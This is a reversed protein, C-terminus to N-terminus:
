HEKLQQLLFEVQEWQEHQILEENNRRQREEEIFQQGADISNQQETEDQIQALQELVAFGELEYLQEQEWQEKPDMTELDYAELLGQKFTEEMPEEFPDEDEWMDNYRDVRRQHYEHQNDLWRSFARDNAQQRQFWQQQQQHQQSRMAGQHERRRQRQRQRRRRRSQQRRTTNNNQQLNLIPYNQSPIMNATTLPVVPQNITVIPVILLQDINSETENNELLPRSPTFGVQTNNGSM